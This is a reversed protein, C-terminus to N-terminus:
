TPGSESKTSVTRPRVNPNPATPAPQQSVAQPSQVIRAVLNTARSPPGTETRTSAFARPAHAPALSVCLLLCLRAADRLRAPRRRRASADAHSADPQRPTKPSLAIFEGTAAQEQRASPRSPFADLS